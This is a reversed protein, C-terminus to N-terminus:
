QPVVNLTLPLVVRDAGTGTSVRDGPVSPDYLGVEIRAPGTYDTDLFVMPHVDVITEGPVWTTTPQAGDAPRDDDQAVLRTDGSASLLHTFVIYDISSSTELARWYLTLPLPQAATVEVAPLSYGVLVAFDGFTVNVEGAVTAEPTDTSAPTPTDPPPPTPVVARTAVPTATPVVPGMTPSPTLSPGPTPPEVGAASTPTSRPADPDYIPSGPLIVTAGFYAVVGIIILVLAM